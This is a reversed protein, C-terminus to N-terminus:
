EYNKLYECNLINFHRLYKSSHNIKLCNDPLYNFIVLNLFDRDIEKETYFVYISKIKNENINKKFFDKYKEYFESGKQPYSIKDFTRSPSYLKENLLASYFSYNSILIKNNKDNQLKDYFNEIETIEDNANNFNPSIWRLGKFFDKKFNIEVGSKLNTDVLEHFKRDINFREHFKFTSFFCILLFLIEFYLKKKIKTAQVVSLLFACLIPIIFFIFIQNKIFIQHYILTVSFILIVLFLHFEKFSYNKEQFIKKSLLIIISFLFLYIFKFDLFVNNFNLDYNTYRDQAISTPFVVLHFFFDNLNINVMELFIILITLFSIIGLISFKIPNFSKIKYSYYALFFTIGIITYAAPVQKCLFALGFSIVAFFLYSNNNTKIYFILLYISIVSFFASHLDLFPTGSVPYALVSICISLLFAKFEGIELYKFTKFSFIAIILNFLSSHIVYSKWNLGFIKFFISQIFDVLLGHVIWFDKIPIEKQIIRAASDFHVFTDIPFVGRSAVWYNIYFSFIAIIFYYFHTILKRYHASNM